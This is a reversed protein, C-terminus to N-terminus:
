KNNKKKILVLIIGFFVIVFENVVFKEIPTCFDLKKYSQLYKIVLKKTDENFSQLEELKKDEGDLSAIYKISDCARREESTYAVFGSFTIFANVLLLFIIFLIRKNARKFIELM